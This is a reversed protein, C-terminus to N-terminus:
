MIYLSLRVSGVGDFTATWRHRSQTCSWCHMWCSVHGGWIHETLSVCAYLCVGEAM